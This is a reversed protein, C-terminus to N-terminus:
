AMALFIYTGGSSNVDSNSTVIQFGTTVTYVWNANSEAANSNFQLSPDTGAVMGRATDWVYWGSNPASNGYQKIMVFRAGGTFGCDITLTSGTGTYSGVKSVGACTAFLYAVYTRASVSLGFGSDAKLFVSTSTSAATLYYANYNITPFDSDTRNLYLQRFNSVGLNFFTYWGETSGNREKFIMLQPSAQLNHTLTINSGTGTYCVVDFVSPARGFHWWVTSGGNFYGGDVATKNWVSYVNPTSTGEAFTGWTNLDKGDANTPPYIRLRDLVNGVGASARFSAITMDAPFGVTRTTGTSATATIPIFVSTGVTPVKMPGRRIAIYIIPASANQGALNFGTSTPTGFEGDAEAATTNAYIGRDTYQGINWGRMNDLLVWQTGANRQKFLIWQPEYGLNVTANGSGDTTVGGCSIVNDTGTLGFGGADHAFLYMVFNSGPNLAGSPFTISSSGVTIWPTFNNTQGSTSNLFIYYNSPDTGGNMMRHYVYWNDTGDTMKVMVCGPTSALNHNVTISGSSPYTFTQIDFFKAQERFTWKIYNEGARNFVTNGGFNLVVNGDNQTIYSAKSRGVAAQSATTNTELGGTRITDWLIHNEGATTRVRFWDLAGLTRNIGDTLTQSSDSGAYAFPSFVEEIYVPVAAAGGGFADYTAAGSTAQLPM